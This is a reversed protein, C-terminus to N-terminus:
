AEAGASEALRLADLGFGTTRLALQVVEFLIGGLGVVHPQLMRLDHRPQRRQQFFVLALAAAPLVPMRAQTPKFAVCARIGTSGNLESLPVRKYVDSCPLLEAM